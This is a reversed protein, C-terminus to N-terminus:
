PLTARCAGSDGRLMKLACDRVSRTSASAGGILDVRSAPLRLPISSVSAPEPAMAYVYLFPLVAYRGTDPRLTVTVTEGPALTPHGADSWLTNVRSRQSIAFSPQIRRDGLNTVRVTVSQLQNTALTAREVTIRLPAPTAVAVGALALAPLFALAVALAPRRAAFGVRALQKELLPRSRGIAEPEATLAWVVWLPIFIEFYDPTSRTSLLLGVTLFLPVIPAVRRIAVGTVLLLTAFLVATAYSFFQLAGSHGLVAVSLTVVGVGNPFSHQFFVSVMASSWSRVDHIAFPASAIAFVLLAIGLFPAIVMAAPRRDLEGRRVRWLAVLFFTAVIWSLQQAAAALGLAVAQAIHVRSLTGGAGIATWRAAALCLLPLAIMAPMSLFAFNAFLGLGFVITVALARYSTPLVRFVIIATAIVGLGAVVQPQGLPAWIHSLVWGIELMLPPYEYRTVAGGDLLPTLGRLTAVIPYDERYPDHGHLLTRLALRGLYAEDNGGDFGSRLFPLSEVVFLGVAGTVAAVDLRALRRDSRALIVAITLALIGVYGASLVLSASRSLTVIQPWGLVLGVFLSLAAVLSVLRRGVTPTPEPQTLEPPSPVSCWM